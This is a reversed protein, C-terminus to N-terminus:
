LSEARPRRWEERSFPVIADAAENRVLLVRAKSLVTEVLISDMGQGPQTAVLDSNAKDLFWDEITSYGARYLGLFRRGALQALHSPGCDNGVVLLASAFLRLLGGIELQDRVEVGPDPSLEELLGRERPGLVLVAKEGVDNALARGLAVFRALPWRKEPRGAGPLLVVRGALADAASELGTARRGKKEREIREEMWRRFLPITTRDPRARAGPDVLSAFRSAMYIQPDYRVREDLLRALPGEDFGIRRAGSVGAAVCSVTSKRRLNLVVDPRERRVAGPLGARGENPRVEDGLRWRVFEEGGDAAAFLLIRAEPYRERLARFLPVQVIRAGWFPKRPLIAAITAPSATSAEATASRGPRAADRDDFPSM